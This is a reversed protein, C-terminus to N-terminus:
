SLHGELPCEGLRRFRVRTGGKGKKKNGELWSIITEFDANITSNVQDISHSSYYFMTDHAYMAVNAIQLCFPLDNKM